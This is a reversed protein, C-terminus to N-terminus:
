DSQPRAHMRDYLDAGAAMGDIAPQRHKLAKDEYDIDGAGFRKYLEAGAQLGGSAAAPPSAASEPTVEALSPAGGVPTRVEATLAAWQEDSLSRLYDTFASRIESM